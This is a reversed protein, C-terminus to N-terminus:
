DWYLNRWIGMGGASNKPDGRLDTSVAWCTVEDVVNFYLMEDVVMKTIELNLETREAIDHISTLPVPADLMIYFARDHGEWQYNVWTEASMSGVMYKLNSSCLFGGNNNGGILMDFMTEDFVYRSWSGLDLTLVNCTVGIDRLNAQIIESAVVLHATGNNLFTIEKDVLGSSIALERALEPDYGHGYAGLDFFRDDIDYCFQSSPLRSKPVYNYYAAKVISDRDIAYAVALRADRNEYFVSYPSINFNIARSTTSPAIDVNVNTLTQVFEVDQFPIVAMDVTGTQIANVRQTDEKLQIFHFNKIAPPTGWYDDRRTVNLHSNVVYDEIVYPGTGNPTMAITDADYTEKDFMGVIALSNYLTITFENLVLDITYKDVIYSAETDLQPFITPQGERHNWCDFSFLADESDFESGDAFTVGERLFIRITMPGVEEYGTALLYVLNNDSDVYWLPEYILGNMCGYIDLDTMSHPHLTGRDQTVGITVTDKGSVSGSGSSGNDGSAAGSGGPTTNGSSGANSEGAPASSTGQTGSDKNCAVISFLLIACLILALLKNVKM